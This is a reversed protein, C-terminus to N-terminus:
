RSYKLHSQINKFIRNEVRYLENFSILYRGFLRNLARIDNEYISTQSRNLKVGQKKLQDKLPIHLRFDIQLKM